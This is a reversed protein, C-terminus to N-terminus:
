AGAYMDICEKKHGAKWHAKQCEKSCYCANKCRSCMKHGGWEVESKDCHNCCRRSTGMMKKNSEGIADWIQKDTLKNLQKLTKLGPVTAAIDLTVNRKIESAACWRFSLVSKTEELQGSCFNVARSHYHYAMRETEEKRSADGYMSTMEELRKLFREALAFTQMSKHVPGWMRQQTTLVMLILFVRDAVGYSPSDKLDLSLIDRFWVEEHAVIDDHFAQYIPQKEAAATNSRGAASPKDYVDYTKRLEACRGSILQLKALGVTRGPASM